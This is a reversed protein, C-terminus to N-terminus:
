KDELAEVRQLLRQYNRRQLAAELILVEEYRLGYRSGAEVAPSLEKGTDPDYVADSASWEDHCFFAFDCANLGHRKFAEAYRQAIAGFHWRAGDDGKEIIRDIYQYQVFDIEAAADLITDTIELPRSKSEEDSTVTFATQTFGGSWPIVATGCSWTNPTEGSINGRTAIGGTAKLTLKSSQAVGSTGGSFQIQGYEIDSDSNKHTLQTTGLPTSSKTTLVGQSFDFMKQETDRNLISYSACLFTPRNWNISGFGLKDSSDAMLGTPNVTSDPHLFRGGLGDSWLGNVMPVLTTPWLHDVVKIAHTTRRVFNNSLMNGGRGIVFGVSSNPSGSGSYVWNDTISCLKGRCEIGVFGGSKVVEAERELILLNSIYSDLPTAQDTAAGEIQVGREFPAIHTQVISNNNSPNVPNAQHFGGRTAVIESESVIWGECQGNILVGDGSLLYIKAGRVFIGSSNYGVIGNSNHNTLTAYTDNEDSGYINFNELRVSHFGATDSMDGIKIGNKWEQNSRGGNAIFRTYSDLQFNRGFFRPMRTNGAVSSRLELANGNAKKNTLLTLGEFITAPNDTGVLGRFDFMLGTDIDDFLIASSAPTTGYLRCPRTIAPLPSTAKYLGDVFYSTGETPSSNIRNIFKTLADTSDNAFGSIGGFDSVAIIRQNYDEQTKGFKTGVLSAGNESAMTNAFDNPNDSYTGMIISIELGLPIGEALTITRALKDFVFGRNPEQRAGEIYISQIDVENKDVPVPIVTQNDSVATYYWTSVAIGSIATNLEDAIQELKDATDQLDNAVGIVIGEAAVATTAAQEAEDRFEKAEAASGASAQANAESNEAATEAREVLEEIQGEKTSWVDNVSQEICNWPECDGCCPNSGCNCNEKDCM